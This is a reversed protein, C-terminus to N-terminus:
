IAAKADKRNSGDYGDLDNTNNFIIRKLEDISEPSEIDIVHMEYEENTYTFVELTTGVITINAFDFNSRVDAVCVTNNYTKIHFKSSRLIEKIALAAITSDM